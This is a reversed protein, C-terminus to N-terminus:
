NRYGLEKEIAAHLARLAARGEEVARRNPSGDALIRNLSAAFEGLDEQLHDGLRYALAPDYGIIHNIWRSTNALTACLDALEGQFIHHRQVELYLTNGVRFPSDYFQAEADSSGREITRLIQNGKRDFNDIQTDLASLMQERNAADTSPSNPAAGQRVQIFQLILAAAGFFTSAITFPDPDVASQKTSGEM